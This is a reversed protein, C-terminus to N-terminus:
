KSKKGKLKEIEEDEDSKGAYINIGGQKRLMQAKWMKREYEDSPYFDFFPNMKRFPPPDDDWFVDKPNTQVWAVIEKFSEGDKKTLVFGFYKKTTGDVL